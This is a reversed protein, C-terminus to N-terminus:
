GAGGSVPCNVRSVTWRGDHAHLETVSLPAADIRWFVDLPAGLAHVLAAKVVGGHTIAAAAGEGAAQDDLWEAVRSFFARLPEGGHPAADPDIM